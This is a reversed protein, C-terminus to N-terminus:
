INVTKRTLSHRITAAGRRQKKATIKDHGARAAPTETANKLVLDM